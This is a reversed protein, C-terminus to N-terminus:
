IIIDNLLSNGNQCLIKQGLQSDCNHMVWEAGKKMDPQRHVMGHSDTALFHVLGSKCLKKIFSNRQHFIGARLSSANIQFYAGLDLLDKIQELRKHLCQYREIHALIPLYGKDSLRRVAHYLEEYTVTPPFEVLIYSTGSMTWIEGSELREALSESYMLECGLYLEMENGFETKKLCTKLEKFATKIHEVKQFSINAAAHPTCIVKRVNQNYEERLAAISEKIDKAGDDM